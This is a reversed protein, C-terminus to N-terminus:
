PALVLTQLNRNGETGSKRHITTACAASLFGDDAVAYPKSCKKEGREEMEGSM